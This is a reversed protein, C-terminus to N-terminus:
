SRSSLIATSASCTLTDMKPSDMGGCGGGNQRQRQPLTLTSNEVAGRNQKSQWQWLQTAQASNQMVFMGLPVDASLSHPPTLFASKWQPSQM